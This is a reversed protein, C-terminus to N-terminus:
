GWGPFFFACWKVVRKKSSFVFRILEKVVVRVALPFSIQFVIALHM